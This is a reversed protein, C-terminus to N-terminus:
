REYSAVLKANAIPSKIGDKITFSCIYNEKKGEKNIFAEEYEYVNMKM